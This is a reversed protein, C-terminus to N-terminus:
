DKDFRSPDISMFEVYRSKREMSMIPLTVLYPVVRPLIENISPSITPTMSTDLTQLGTMAHQVLFSVM